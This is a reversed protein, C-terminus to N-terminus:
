ILLCGAQKRQKIGHVGNSLLERVVEEHVTQGAVFLTSFSDTDATHVNAGNNLLERVVEIHGEQCAIYLPTFDHKDATNVNAGNYLVERFM